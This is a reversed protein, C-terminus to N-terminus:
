ILIFCSATLSHYVNLQTNTPEDNDDDDVLANALVLIFLEKGISLKVTHVSELNLEM